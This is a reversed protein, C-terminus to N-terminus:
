LIENYSFIYFDSKFVPLRWVIKETISTLLDSINCFNLLFSKNKNGNKTENKHRKGRLSQNLGYVYLKVKHKAWKKFLIM